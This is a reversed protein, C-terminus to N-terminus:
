KRYLRVCPVTCVMCVYKYLKFGPICRSLLDLSGDDNTKNQISFARVDIFLVTM